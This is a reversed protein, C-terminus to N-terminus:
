NHFELGEKLHTKILQVVLSYVEKDTLVIENSLSEIQEEKHNAHKNFESYNEGNILNLNEKDIKLFYKCGKVRCRYVYINGKLPPEKYSLKYGKFYINNPINRKKYAPDEHTKNNSDM